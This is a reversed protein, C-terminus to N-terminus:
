GALLDSRIHQPSIGLLKRLEIYMRYAGKFGQWLAFRLVTFDDFGLLM